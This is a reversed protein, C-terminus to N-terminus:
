LEAIPDFLVLSKISEFDKVNHTWLALNNELATAAIIADPLEINITKRLEIVRKTVNDDFLNNKIASFLDEFYKIDTATIGKYGLVESIITNCTHLRSNNLQNVISQGFFPDRLYIVINSDLLAVILKM